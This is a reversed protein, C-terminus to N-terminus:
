HKEVGRYYDKIFSMPESTGIAIVREGGSLRLDLRKRGLAEQTRALDEGLQENNLNFLRGPGRDASAADSFGIDTSGTRSAYLALSYALVAPPIRGVGDRREFQALDVHFTLLGLHRLPCDLNDEPDTEDSPLARRYTQLVVAIERQLTKPTAKKDSINVLHRELANQCRLRDFRSDRFENWFWRYVGDQPLHV